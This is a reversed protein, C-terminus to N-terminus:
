KKVAEIRIAEEILHRRWRKCGWFFGISGSMLATYFTFIGSWFAGMQPFIVGLIWSLPVGILIWGAGAWLVSSLVVLAFFLYALELIQRCRRFGM